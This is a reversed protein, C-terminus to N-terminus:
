PGADIVKVEVGDPLGKALEALRDRLAKAAAKPDADPLRSVLLIVAPKGDLATTNGWGEAEEVRAVAGLRVREGDKGAKLIIDKFGDPDALRGTFTIALHRAGPPVEVSLGQDRLANAVDSITLGLAAMRERDVVLRVQKGPETDGYFTADAMGPVRALEDRLQLKAYNALYVRDYRDNPSVLAVAALHVGRKKVTIGNQRVVEPLKPLAQAIRNQAVVQARNLDTGKEFLLTLRMTGDDACALVHHTVKELGNLEQGIPGAVTGEVVEASAGPYTATVVLAPGPGSFDAPPRAPRPPTRGLGRPKAPRDTVPQPKVEQGARHRAPDRVVRDDATLGAKVEALGHDVQVM